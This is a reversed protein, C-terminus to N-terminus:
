ICISYLIPISFATIAPHAQAKNTNNKERSTGAGSFITVCYQTNYINDASCVIGSVETDEVFYSSSLFHM